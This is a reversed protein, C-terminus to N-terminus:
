TFPKIAKCNLHIAVLYITLALLLVEIGELM